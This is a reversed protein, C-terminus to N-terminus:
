IQLHECAFDDVFLQLLHLCYCYLMSTFLGYGQLTEDRYHEEKKICVNKFCQEM